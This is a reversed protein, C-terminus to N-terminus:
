RPSLLAHAALMGAALCGSGWLLPGGWPMPTCAFLLGLALLSGGWLLCLRRQQQRRSDSFPLLCLGGILLAGGFGMAWLGEEM